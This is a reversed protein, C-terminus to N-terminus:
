VKEHRGRYNSIKGDREGITSNFCYLQQLVFHCKTNSMLHSMRYKNRCSKM